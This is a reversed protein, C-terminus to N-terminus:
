KIRKAETYYRKENADGMSFTKRPLAGDKIVSKFLDSKDPKPLLFGANGDKRGLECCVDDGHIYDVEGGFSRLYEDLFSQLTGVALQM